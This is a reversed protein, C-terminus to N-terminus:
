CGLRTSRWGKQSSTQGLFSRKYVHAVERIAFTELLPPAYVQASGNEFKCCHWHCKWWRKIYCRSCMTCISYKICTVKEQFMCSWNWLIISLKLAYREFYKTWCCLFPNFDFCRNRKQFQNRILLILDIARSRCLWNDSSQSIVERGISHYSKGQFM